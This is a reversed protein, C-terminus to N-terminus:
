TGLSEYQLPRHETEVLNTPEKISHHGIASPIAIYYGCISRDIQHALNRLNRLNPAVNAKGYM